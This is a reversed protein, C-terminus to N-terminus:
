LCITAYDYITYNILYGIKNNSNKVVNDHIEQMYKLQSM